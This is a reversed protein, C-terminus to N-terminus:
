RALGIQKRLWEARHRRADDNLEHGADYITVLKPYSAAKSYLTAKKKMRLLQRSAHICLSSGSM